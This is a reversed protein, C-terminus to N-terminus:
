RYIQREESKGGSENAGKKEGLFYIMSSLMNEM